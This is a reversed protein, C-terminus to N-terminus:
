GKMGSLVVGQIFYRQLAIFVLVVPLTAVTSVAMIYTWYPQRLPQTFVTMGLPLTFLENKTVVLLPWLFDNWSGIFTLLALTALAPRLMPVAIRWLITFEGAGDIRAADLLEDPLTLAFQRMLFVGFAGMAGPIILGAFSNTWGLQYVVVYLPIVIVQFPIMMTSLIFLFVFNRGPFDYKALGYGAITCFFLTTLVTSLAVLTSNFFYRAFPAVRFAEPYNQPSFQVPFWHIPIAFVENEAKLSTTLMYYLPICFLWLGAFLALYLLFKAVFGLLWPQTRRTPHRAVPRLPEPRLPDVTM